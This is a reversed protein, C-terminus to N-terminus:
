YWEQVLHRAMALNAKRGRPPRELALTGDQPKFLRRGSERWALSKQTKVTISTTRVEMM